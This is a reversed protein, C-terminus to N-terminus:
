NVEEKHAYHSIGKYFGKKLFKQMVELVEYDKMDKHNEAYLWGCSKGIVMLLPYFGSIDRVKIYSFDEFHKESMDEITKGSIVLGIAGKLSNIRKKMQSIASARRIEDLEKVRKTDIVKKVGFLVCSSRPEPVETVPNIYNPRPEIYYSRFFLKFIELNEGEVQM